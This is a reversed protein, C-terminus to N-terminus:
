QVGGDVLAKKISAPRDIARFFSVRASEHDGERLRL